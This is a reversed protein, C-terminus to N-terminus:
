RIDEFSEPKQGLIIFKVINRAHHMFFKGRGAEMRRPSTTVVLAPEFVVQGVKALRIGLDVDEASILTRNFGGVQKFTTARVAFNFGNLAKKGFAFMTQMAIPFLYEAMARNVLSKSDFRATGTLAVVEQRSQFIGNIARLWDQPATTDSDTGVFIDGKASEYGTQRVAAIPKEHCVVVKASFRKAVEATADTSEHDVVIVEYFEKPYDQNQLSELCAPLYKEENFAPIVVSIFYNMRLNNKLRVTRAYIPVGVM